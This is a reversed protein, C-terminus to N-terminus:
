VLEGEFDFTEFSEELFSDNELMDAFVSQNIINRKGSKEVVSSQKLIFYKLIRMYKVNQEFQALYRRAVSLCQEISYGKLNRLSWLAKLRKSLNEVSDRWPYKGDKEGPPWLERLRKALETFFDADELKMLRFEQVPYETLTTTLEDSDFYGRDNLYRLCYLAEETFVTSTLNVIM